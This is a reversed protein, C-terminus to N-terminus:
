TSRYYVYHRAASQLKPEADGASNLTERRARPMPFLASIAVVILGWSAVIAAAPLVWDGWACADSVAWNWLAM